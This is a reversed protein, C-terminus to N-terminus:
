IKVSFDYSNSGPLGFSVPEGRSTSLRAAPPMGAAQLAYTGSTTEWVLLVTVVWASACASVSSMNIHQRPWVCAGRM